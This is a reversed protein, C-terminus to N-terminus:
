VLVMVILADDLGEVSTATKKTWVAMAAVNGLEVVILAHPNQNLM